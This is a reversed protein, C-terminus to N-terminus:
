VGSDEEEIGVTNAWNDWATCTNQLVSTSTLLGPIESEREVFQLALGESTHWGIHCHMQQLILKVASPPAYPPFNRVLWAGPNDTLFAIVLYGASPLNAVDRRPPNNLNLTVSDDYTAGDEAALIFFDHGHLHIPHPVDLQTEIVFYVWENATELKYVNEQSEFTTNGESIQLLSPNAWEVLMSNLGIQWKFLNGSAAISVGLDQDQRPDVVTQPLYPVLNSLLEDNCDANSLNSDATSTPDATSSSSYRVIARIDASNANSSCSSQPVARM